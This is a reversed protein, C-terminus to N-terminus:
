PSDGIIWGDSEPRMNWIHEADRQQTWPKLMYGCGLCGIRFQKGGYEERIHPKRNCFPCNRLPLAPSTGDQIPSKSRRAMNNQTLWLIFGSRGM